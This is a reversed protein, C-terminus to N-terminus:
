GTKRRVNDRHLFLIWLCIFLIVFGLPNVGYPFIFFPALFLIFAGWIAGLVAYDIRKILWLLFLFHLFLFAFYYPWLALLGGSLTSIGKGGRFKLFVSAGNGLLLFCLSFFPDLLQQNYHFFLAVGYAKLADLFFILFFYKYSGMVRAFNTAGINGSGRKTIDINFFYRGIWYGTPIAGVLYSIVCSAVFTWDFVM